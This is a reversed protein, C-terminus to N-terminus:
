WRKGGGWQGSAYGMWSELKSAFQKQRPQTLDLQSKVRENAANVSERYRAQLAEYQEQALKRDAEKGWNILKQAEQMEKRARDYDTFALKAASAFASRTPEVLGLFDATQDLVAQTYKTEDLQDRAGALKGLDGWFKNLKDAEDLIEAVSPDKTSSSPATSPSVPKSGTSGKLEAIERRVLTLERLVADIRADGTPAPTTIEPQKEEPADAGRSTAKTGPKTEPQKALRSLALANVILSIGLMSALVLTLPKM